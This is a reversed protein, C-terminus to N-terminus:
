RWCHGQLARVDLLVDVEEWLQFLWTAPPSNCLGALGVSGMGTDEKEGGPEKEEARSIGALGAPVLIHGAQAGDSMADFMKPTTLAPPVGGCSGKSSAPLPVATGSNRGRDGCGWGLPCVGPHCNQVTFFLGFVM